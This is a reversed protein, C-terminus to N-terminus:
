KLLNKNMGTVVQSISNLIYKFDKDAIQNWKDVLYLLGLLIAGMNCLMEDFDATLPIKYILIRQFVNSEQISTIALFKVHKSTPVEMYSHLLWSSRECTASRTEFRASEFTRNQKSSHCNMWILFWVCRAACHYMEEKWNCRKSRFFCCRFLLLSAPFVLQTKKEPRYDGLAVKASRQLSMNM